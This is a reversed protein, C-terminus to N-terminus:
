ADIEYFDLRDTQTDLLAVSYTQARFLAGPNIIRTTGSRDDARRHTHGHCLYRVGDALAKQMPKEEHGHCFALEGGGGVPLRGVPHNVQIGLDNAYERLADLDWDTNGFVMNAPIQEDCGSLNVCLMDIVEVTGIDGLHILREAGQELLMEVGRRTTAARGHSDSLLGIKSM